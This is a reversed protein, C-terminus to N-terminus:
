LRTHHSRVDLEFLVGGPPVFYLKQHGCLRPVFHETKGKTADKVISSMKSKILRPTTLVAWSGTM